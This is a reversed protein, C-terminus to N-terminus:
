PAGRGCRLWLPDVVAAHECAAAVAQAVQVHWAATMLISRFVQYVSDAATFAKCRFARPLPLRSARHWTTPPVPVCCCAAYQAIIANAATTPDSNLDIETFM